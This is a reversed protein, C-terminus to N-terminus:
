PKRRPKLYDEAWDALAILAPQLSRGFDTLSYEVRPPVEPYIERHVLGEAELERLQATLMRPTISCISNRLEGFRLTGELLLRSLIVSKWKGGLVQMAAEVPCDDYDRSNPDFPM